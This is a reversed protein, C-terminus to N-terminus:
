VGGRRTPTIGATLCTMVDIEFQAFRRSELNITADFLVFFTQTDYTRVYEVLDALAGDDGGSV